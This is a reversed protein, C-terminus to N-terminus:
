GTGGLDIAVSTQAHRFILRGAEPPPAPAFSSYGHEVLVGGERRGGSSGGGVFYNTGVDDALSPWDDPGHGWTRGPPEGSHAGSPAARTSEADPRPGERRFLIQVGDGYIEAHIIRLGDVPDGGVVVRRLDVVLCSTRLSTERM